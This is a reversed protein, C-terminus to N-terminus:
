RKKSGDYYGTSKINKHGLLRQKDEKTYVSDDLNRIVQHRISHTVSHKDNGNVITSLNLKKFERYIYFRNLHDFPQRGREKCRMLYEYADGANIVRDHSSKSAKIKVHGTNTVDYGRIRLVESVRLVGNVMLVIVAHLPKNDRKTVKLASELSINFANPAIGPACLIYSHASPKLVSNISKQSKGRLSLKFRNKDYKM